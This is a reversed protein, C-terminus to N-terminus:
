VRVLVGEGALDELMQRLDQSVQSADVDTYRELLHVIIADVSEGASVLRLVRTGSANVQRYQGSRRSLLVGGDTVEKFSVDDSLRYTHSM